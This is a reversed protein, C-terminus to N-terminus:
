VVLALNFIKGTYSIEKRCTKCIAKSKDVTSDDKYFGFFKWVHSKANGPFNVIERLDNNNKDMM